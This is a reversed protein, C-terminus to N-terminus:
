GQGVRAVWFELGMGEFIRRAALAHQEATTAEGLRAAVRALTAHCHALDPQMQLEEAVTRAEEARERAGRLDGSHVQVEAELRL